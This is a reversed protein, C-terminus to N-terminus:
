LLVNLDQGQRESCTYLTAQHKFHVLLSCVDRLRRLVWAYKSYADPFNLYDMVRQLSTIVANGNRSRKQRICHGSCFIINSISISRPNRKTKLLFVDGRSNFPFIYSLAQASPMPAPCPSLDPSVLHRKRPFTLSCQSRRIFLLPFADRKIFRSKNCFASRGFSTKQAFPVHLAPGPTKSAKPSLPHSFGQSNLKPCLASCQRFSEKGGSKLVLNLGNGKQEFVDHFHM